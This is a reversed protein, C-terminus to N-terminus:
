QVRCLAELRNDPHILGINYCLFMGLSKIVKGYGLDLQLLPTLGEKVSHRDKEANMVLLLANRFLGSHFQSNPFKV